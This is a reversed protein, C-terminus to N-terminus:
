NELKNLYLGALSAGQSSLNIFFVLVQQSCGMGPVRLTATVAGLAQSRHVHRKPHHCDGGCARTHGEFCLFVFHACADMGSKPLLAQM